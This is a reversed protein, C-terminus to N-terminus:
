PYQKEESPPRPANDLRLLWAIVDVDDPVKIPSGRPLHRLTQRWQTLRACQRHPRQGKEVERRILWMVREVPIKRM